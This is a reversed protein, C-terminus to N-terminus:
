SDEFMSKYWYFGPDKIWSFKKSDALVSLPALCIGYRSLLAILEKTMANSLVRRDIKVVLFCGLGSCSKVALIENLGLFFRREDGKSLFRVLKIKVEM